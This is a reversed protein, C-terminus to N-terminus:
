RTEDIQGSKAPFYFVFNDVPIEIVVIDRPAFAPSATEANTTPEAPAVTVLPLPLESTVKPTPILESPAKVILPAPVPSNDTEVIAVSPPKVKLPVPIAM